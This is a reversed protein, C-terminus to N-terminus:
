LFSTKRPQRTNIISHLDFSRCLQFREAIAALQRNNQMEPSTPRRHARLCLLQGRAQGSLAWINSKGVDFGFLGLHVM